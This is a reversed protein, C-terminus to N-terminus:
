TNKTLNNHHFDHEFFEWQRSFCLDGKEDPWHFLPPHYVGNTKAKKRCGFQHYSISLFGLFLLINLKSCPPVFGFITWRIQILLYKLRLFIDRM